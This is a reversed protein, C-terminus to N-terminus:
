PCWAWTAGPFPPPQSISGHATTATAREIPMDVRTTNIGDNPFPVLPLLASHQTMACVRLVRGAAWVGGTPAGPAPAVSVRVRTTGSIQGM